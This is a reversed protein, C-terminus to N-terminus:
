GGAPTVRLRGIRAGDMTVVEFRWGDAVVSDGVQPFRELQQLVLGALTSFSDDVDLRRGLLQEARRVDLGADVHWAGDEDQSASPDGDLADPFEGAIVELVDSPTVLGLLSGYEDVVLAVRLPARRFEEIMPEMLPSHFAHSVRLRRTRVGKEAWREALALVADTEGSIVTADPANVAAIAVGDGLAAYVEEEPLGIAVM